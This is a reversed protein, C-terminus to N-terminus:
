KKRKYDLQCLEQLQERYQSPEEYLDLWVRELSIRYKDKEWHADKGFMYNAFMVYKIDKADVISILKNEKERILSPDSSTTVQALITIGEEKGFIDVNPITGGSLPFPDPLYLEGAYGSALWMKCMEETAEDSLLSYHYPYVIGYYARYVAERRRLNVVHAITTSHQSVSKLIPIESPSVSELITDWRPTCYAGKLKFYYFRFDDHQEIYFESGQKILGIRLDKYGKYSAVILVDQEKVKNALTIFDQIYKAQKPQAMQEGASLADFYEQHLEDYGTQSYDQICISVVGEERLRNTHLTHKDTYNTYWLYVPEDFLPAQLYMAEAQKTAYAFLRERWLEKNAKLLETDEEPFFKKALALESPICPPTAWMHPNSHEAIHNPLCYTEAHKLLPLTTRHWSLYVGQYTWFNFPALSNLNLNNDVQECRNQLFYESDFDIDVPLLPEYPPREGLYARLLERMSFCARLMKELIDACKDFPLHSLSGRKTHEKIISKLNDFDQNNDDKGIRELLLSVLKFGVSWLTFRVDEWRPDGKPADKDSLYKYAEDKIHYGAWVMRAFINIREECSIKRAEHSGKEFLAKRNLNKYGLLELANTSRMNNSDGLIAALLKITIVLSFHAVM